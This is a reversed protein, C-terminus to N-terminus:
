DLIILSEEVPRRQSLTTNFTETAEGIPIMCIIKESEPIQIIPKLRQEDKMTKGWNAPCNAIQLYHLAYLLNMLYVGGDIYFQNREGVTYYYRRDNTIILLQKVNDTYGVFGGQIKLVEDIKNKDEILYVNTAQRNCVSPATNAIEIAKQIRKHHVKNGTFSRISQRSRAFDEFGKQKINEYFDDRTWRYIGSFNEDYLKNLAGKYSLYQNETYFDSIDMEKALHIEYYKCMVQYGVKIQSRAIKEIVERDKLIEHLNLIRNKAFGKRINDFLMGKELSHYNLILNAEKNKIDKKSFIVSYKKYLKFDNVFDFFLDKFNFFSLYYPRFIKKVKEM